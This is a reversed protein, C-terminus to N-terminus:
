WVVGNHRDDAAAYASLQVLNSVHEPLDIDRTYDDVAQYFQGTAHNTQM